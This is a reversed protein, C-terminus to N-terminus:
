PRLALAVVSCVLVVGGGPAWTGTAACLLLIFLGTCWFIKAASRSPFVPDGVYFSLFIEGLFSPMCRYM